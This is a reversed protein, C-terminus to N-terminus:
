AEVPVPDYYTVGDIVVAVNMVGTAAAEVLYNPYCVLAPVRVKFLSRTQADDQPVPDVVGDLYLKCTRSATGLTETFHLVRDGGDNSRTAAIAARGVFEAAITDAEELTTARWVFAMSAEEDHTHWAAIGTEESLVEPVPRLNTVQPTSWEIGLTPLAPADGAEAPGAVATLDTVVDAMLATAWTMLAARIINASSVPATM